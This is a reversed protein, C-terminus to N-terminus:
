LYLLKLRAFYQLLDSYMTIWMVTAYGITIILLAGGGGFYWWTHRHHSLRRPLIPKRDLLLYPRQNYAADDGSVNTSRAPLPWHCRLMRLKHQQAGVGSMHEPYQGENPNEDVVQVKGWGGEKMPYHPFSTITLALTQARESFYLGM